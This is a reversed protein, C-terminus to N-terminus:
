HLDRDHSGGLSQRGLGDTVTVGLREHVTMNLQRRNTKEFSGLGARITIAASSRTQLGRRDSVSFAGPVWSKSIEFCSLLSSASSKSIEAPHPQTRM